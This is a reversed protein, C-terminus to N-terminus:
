LFLTLSCDVTHMNNLEKKDTFAHLGIISFLESKMVTMEIAIRSLTCINAPFSGVTYIYLTDSM